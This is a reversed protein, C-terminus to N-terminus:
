GVTSTRTASTQRSTSSATSTATSARCQDVAYASGAARARPARVQQPHGGPPRRPVADAAVQHVRYARAPAAGRPAEVAISPLDALLELLRALAPEDLVPELPQERPAVAGDTLTSTRPSRVVQRATTSSRASAM